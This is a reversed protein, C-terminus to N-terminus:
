CILIWMSGVHVGFEGRTLCRALICRAFYTGAKLYNVKPVTTRGNPGPRADAGIGHQEDRDPEEKGGAALWGALPRSPLSFIDVRMYAYLGLSSFVAKYGRM